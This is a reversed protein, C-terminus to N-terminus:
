SNKEHLKVKEKHSDSNLHRKLGYKLQRFSDPMVTDNFCEGITYDYQLMTGCTTCVIGADSKIFYHAWKLMSEVSRASSILDLKEEFTLQTSDIPPSSIPERECSSQQTPYGKTSLADTLASFM